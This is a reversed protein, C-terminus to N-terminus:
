RRDGSLLQLASRVITAVDATDPSNAAAREAARRADARSYGWNVLAGVVDEFVDARGGGAQAAADVRHEFTLQAMKEGLELVIRQALKQGVGPTRTLARVDNSAVARAFEEARLAGLLALAVKPGVGTVSMAQQFVELELLTAFGYLSIDDERVAMITHLSVSEGEAPLDILAAQPVNVRYGVGHVDVIICGQDKRAVTGSLHAIM